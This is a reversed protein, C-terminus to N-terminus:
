LDRQAEGVKALLEILKAKMKVQVKLAKGGEVTLSVDDGEPNDGFVQKAVRRVIEGERDTALQAVRSVSMRGQLVKGDTEKIALAQKLAALANDGVALFLADDRLAAYVTADEGFIRVFDQDVEPPTFSHVNVAGVKERDIQLKVGQRAEDPLFDVVKKVAKEINLGGQVKSCAVLTFKSAASPGQLSFGADLLAAKATPAIAELMQKAVDREAPRKAQSSILEVAEDVVPALATRISEPLAAHASASFAAKDSFLAAGLGKVNGLSEINAALKSGQKGAATLTASLEGAQRDILLDATVEGGDEVISKIQTYLEDLVAIFLKRQKDTVRPPPQDKADAFQLEIQGLVLEKMESPIADLNVTVSGVGKLGAFLDGPKRLNAPAIMEPERITVYVYGNAFRFYGPFPSRPINVEYTGGDGKKFNIQQKQLFALFTEEDAIPALVVVDSDIGGAGLRGYAGFPKTTDVGELGKETKMAKIFGEIQKANEEQGAMKALYMADDILNDLSNVRVVITPKAPEKQALARGPGGLFLLSALVAFLSLRM